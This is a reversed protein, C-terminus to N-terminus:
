LYDESTPDKVPGISPSTYESSSELVNERMTITFGSYIGNPQLRPKPTSNGKLVVKFLIDNPELAAVSILSPFKVPTNLVFTVEDTVPDYYKDVISYIKSMNSFKIMDGVDLDGGRTSWRSVRITRPTLLEIASQAVDTATDTNWRGSKPERHQPLQVYFSSFGGELGTLFPLITDLEEQICDPYTISIEWYGGQFQSSIVGGGNLPTATGTTVPTIDTSAFGLGNRYYPDPLRRIDTNYPM